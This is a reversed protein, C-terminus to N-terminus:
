QKNKSNHLQSALKNSKKNNYNEKVSIKTTAPASNFAEKTKNATETANNVLEFMETKFENNSKTLDAAFQKFMDEMQSKSFGQAPQAAQEEVPAEEAPAEEAGDGEEVGSMQIDSILGAEDTTVISGDVTEIEASAYVDGEGEIEGTKLEQGVTVMDGVVNYFNGDTDEIVAFKNPSKLAALEKQIAEFESKDVLDFKSKAIEKLNM